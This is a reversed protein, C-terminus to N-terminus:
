SFFFFITSETPEVKEIIPKHSFYLSLSGREVHPVSQTRHHFVRQLQVPQACSNFAYIISMIFFLPLLFREITINM